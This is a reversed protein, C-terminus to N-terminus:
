SEGDNKYFTRWDMVGCGFVHRCKWGIADRIFETNEELYPAEYGDLYAVEVTDAQAPDAVLYWAKESNDDLRPEAIPELRNFWPNVVAENKDAETSGRSRLLVEADTEQAVPVLLFRPRLDLIAGSAGTQKRMKQRGTDLSSASVTAGSDTHNSHNTDDFLSNGDNMTPNSTLLAYVLDAEKRRAANGLLQPLRTFARLDDNIIMEWTLHLIRGYKFLRYSEQSDSLSGYGYEEDEKVLNLDPAESLSIGYQTKFDTATTVNVWPRWTAPAEQYASLLTKNAVDRFINSFDATTLAGRPGSTIFDAVQRRSHMKSVDTGSRRLAERIVSAIEYGRFEDAGAAPEKVRLGARLMLGDRAAASFKQSEDQDVVIKNHGFPPNVREMEAFIKEKAQDLPTDNEIMDEGFKEDLAAVKVFKRIAKQREKEAKAAETKLANQEDATLVGDNILKQMFAQAQEDTADAALGKAELMKRLEENMAKTEKTKDNANRASAARQVPPRTPQQHPARGFMTLDFAATQGGTSSDQDIMMALGFDVSEQGNFWTEQHMLQRIEAKDKGSKEAYIEAMTDELKELLDAEKRLDEANGSMVVWPDHIMFYASKAISINNGVMAIISGMSAAQGDVRVNIQAGHNALWNYIAIGEWVVGGPSNIYLNITKVEAPVQNVIDQAEIFPWAIVDYIYVEATDQQGTPISVIPHGFNKEAKQDKRLGKVIEQDQIQELRKMEEQTFNIFLM